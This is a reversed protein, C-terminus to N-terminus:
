ASVMSLDRKKGLGYGGLDGKFLLATENERLFRKVEGGVGRRCPSPLLIRLILYQITNLQGGKGKLSPPQPTLNWL